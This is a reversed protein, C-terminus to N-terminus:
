RFYSPRERTSALEIIIAAVKGREPDDGSLGLRVCVAEFAQTMNCRTEEDIHQVDRFPMLAVIFFVV